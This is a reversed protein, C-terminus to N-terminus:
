QQGSRSGSSHNNCNDKLRPSVFDTHVAFNACAYYALPLQIHQVLDDMVQHDGGTGFNDSKYHNEAATMVNRGIDNALDEEALMIDTEINEFKNSVYVFGLLSKLEKQGDLKKNFLM